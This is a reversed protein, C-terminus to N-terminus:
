KSKKTKKTLNKTQNDNTIPVIKVEIQDASESRALALRCVPEDGKIREEEADDMIDILQM